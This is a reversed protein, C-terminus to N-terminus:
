KYALVYLQKQFLGNSFKTRAEDGTLLLAGSAGELKIQDLPFEKADLPDGHGGYNHMRCVLLAQGPMISVSVTRQHPDLAYQGPELKTWDRTEHSGLQSAPLLSPTEPPAFEYPNEKIRYEIKLVQTSDNVIVFDTAYSCATLSM